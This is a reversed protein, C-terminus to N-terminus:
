KKMGEPFPFSSSSDIAAFRSPHLYALLPHAHVLDQDDKELLRLFHENVHAAVIRGCILSHVDFDDVIRDLECEFHLYAGKVLVGEVQQAPFVPIASVSPKTDGDCRPAAALSAQLIQSPQLYSITFVKERRINSYTHHRPTCVFGIHNQWSLPVVLHKTALDHGGDLERTGVLTLPFVMFVRDWIPESLDLTVLHDKLTETM